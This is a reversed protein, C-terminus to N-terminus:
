DRARCCAEAWASLNGATWDLFQRCETRIPRRKEDDLTGGSFVADATVLAPSDARNEPECLHCGGV